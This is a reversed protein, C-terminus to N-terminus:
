ACNVSGFCEFVVILDSFGWQAHRLHLVLRPEGWIQTWVVNEM